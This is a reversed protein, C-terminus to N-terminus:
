RLLSHTVGNTLEEKLRGLQGHFFHGAEEIRIIHPKESRTNLWDYVTNPAIVDDKEGQVVIWPCTLPEITETDITYLAPAITILLSPHIINAARLAIAGGFSFGALIIAHSPHQQKAWEVVALCDQLEGAGEGYTGASQEVGRFNFRISDIGLDRFTQALTTIVKNHMTGQFLPHPHCLIATMNQAPANGQMLLSEIPGSPGPIFFTTPTM